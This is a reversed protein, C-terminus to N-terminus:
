VLSVGLAILILWEISNCVQEASVGELEGAITQKKKRDPYQDDNWFAELREKQKPTPRWRSKRPAKPARVQAVTGNNTPDHFEPIPPGLSQLQILEQQHTFHSVDSITISNIGIHTQPHLYQFQLGLPINYPLSQLSPDHSYYPEQPHPHTHIGPLHLTNELDTEKHVDDDDDDEDHVSEVHDFDRENM